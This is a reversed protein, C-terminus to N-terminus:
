NERGREDVSERETEREGERMWLSERETEREGERMCLSEREKEREFVSEGDSERLFLLNHAYFLNFWADLTEVVYGHYLISNGSVDYFSLLKFALIIM